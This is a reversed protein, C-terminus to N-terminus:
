FRYRVHGGLKGEPHISMCVANPNLTPRTSPRLLGGAPIKKCIYECVVDINYKLQASIPIVPAGDAITGQIFKCIADYQNAAANEQV